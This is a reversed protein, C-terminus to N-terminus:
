DVVVITRTGGAARIGPEIDPAANGPQRHAYMM